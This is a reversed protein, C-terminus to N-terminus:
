FKKSAGATKLIQNATHRSNLNRPVIADERDKCRWIEHSGKANRDYFYGLEKLEKIVLAYYGQVM